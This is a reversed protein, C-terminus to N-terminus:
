VHTMQPSRPVAYNSASRAHGSLVTNARAREIAKRNQVIEDKHMAKERMTSFDLDEQRNGGIKGIGVGRPKKPTIDIRALVEGKRRYNSITIRNMKALDAFQHTKDLKGYTGSSSTM